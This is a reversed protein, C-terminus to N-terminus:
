SIFSKRDVKIGPGMTSSLTFKKLYTGKVSVPKAKMIANMITECNEVLKLNDFSSKGIVTHIIGNKDVKFHRLVHTYISKFETESLGAKEASVKAQDKNFNGAGFEKDIQDKFKVRIASGKLNVKKM